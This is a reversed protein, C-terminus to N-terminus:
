DGSCYYAAEEMSVRSKTTLRVPVAFKQIIGEDSLWECANDVGEINYNREFFHNMETISRVEGEERLYDKILGFLSDLNAHLYATMSNVVAELEDPSPDSHILDTYMPKFLSPNLALARHVVERSPVEGHLLLEISALPDICKMIWLYCYDYDRKAYFWKQAKTLAPLLGSAVRLLQASRDRDGM